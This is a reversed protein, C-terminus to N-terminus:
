KLIKRFFKLVRTTTMMVRKEIRTKDRKHINRGNRVNEDLTKKDKKSM